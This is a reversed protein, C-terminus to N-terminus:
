IINGRSVTRAVGDNADTFIGDYMSDNQFLGRFTTGDVWTYVSNPGHKKGEFFPGEYKDGNKYTYMGANDLL